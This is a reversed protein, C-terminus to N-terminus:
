EYVQERDDESYDEVFSHCGMYLFRYINDNDYNKALEFIDKYFFEKCSEFNIPIDELDSSKQKKDYFWDIGDETKLWISVKEYLYLSSFEKHFLEFIHKEYDKELYGSEKEQISICYEEWLNELCKTENDKISLTEKKLENIVQNTLRKKLDYVLDSVIKEEIKM